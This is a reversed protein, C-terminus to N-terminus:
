RKEIANSIKRIDRTGTIHANKFGTPAFTNIDSIDVNIHKTVVSLTFNM